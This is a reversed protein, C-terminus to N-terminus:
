SFLGGKTSTGSGHYYCHHLFTRKLVLVWLKWPYFHLRSPPFYKETCTGLAGVPHIYIIAVSSDAETSKKVMPTILLSSGVKSLLKRRTLDIYMCLPLFEHKCFEDLLALLVRCPPVVFNYAPLTLANVTRKKNQLTKLWYGVIIILSNVHLIISLPTSNRHCALTKEHWAM